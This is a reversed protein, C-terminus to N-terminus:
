HMANMMTCVRVCLEHTSRPGQISGEQGMFLCLPSVNYQNVVTLNNMQNM